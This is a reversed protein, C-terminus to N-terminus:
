DWSIDAGDITQMCFARFPVYTVDNILLPIVTDSIVGNFAVRLEGSDNRLVVPGTPVTSVPETVVPVTEQPIGSNGIDTKPVFGSFQPRYNYVQGAGRLYQFM